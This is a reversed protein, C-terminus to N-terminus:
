LFTDSVSVVIVSSPEADIGLPPETSILPSITFPAPSVCFNFTFTVTGDVLVSSLTSIEFFLSPVKSMATGPVSLWDEFLLTTILLPLPLISYSVNASSPSVVFIVTDFSPLVNVLPPTIKSPPFVGFSLITTLPVQIVFEPAVPLVTPTFFCASPLQSKVTLGPPCNSIDAGETDPPFIVKILLLSPVVSM